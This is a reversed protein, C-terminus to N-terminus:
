QPADTKKRKVQIARESRKRDERELRQLIPRAYQNVDDGPDSNRATFDLCRTLAELEENTLYQHFNSTM